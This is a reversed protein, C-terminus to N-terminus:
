IGSKANKNIEREFHELEEASMNKITGEVIKNQDTNENGFKESMQKEAIFKLLIPNPPLEEEVWVKEIKEGVIKGNENYEYSKVVQQKRVIQGGIATQYLSGAIIVNALERGNQMVMVLTPCIACLTDFQKPTMELREAIRSKTEGNLSWEAINQVIQKSLKPLDKSDEKNILEITHNINDYDFYGGYKNMVTEVAVQTNSKRKAM